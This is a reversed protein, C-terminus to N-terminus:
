ATRLSPRIQKYIGLEVKALAFPIVEKAGYKELEEKCVQLNVGTNALNDLLIIRAGYVPMIFDFGISEAAEYYDARDHQLRPVERRRYLLDIGNSFNPFHNSLREIVWRLPNQKQPDPAPVACLIFSDTIESFHKKLLKLFYLKASLRNERLRDANLSFDDQCYYKKPLYMGLHLVKPNEM